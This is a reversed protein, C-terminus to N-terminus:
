FWSTFTRHKFGIDFTGERIGSVLSPLSVPLLSLLALFSLQTAAQHNVGSRQRCWTQTHGKRGVEPPRVTKKYTKLSPLPSLPTRLFEPETLHVTLGAHGLSFSGTMQSLNKLTAPLFGRAQSLLLLWSSSDWGLAAKVGKAKFRNIPWWCIECLSSLRM